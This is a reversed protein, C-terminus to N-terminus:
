IGRLSVAKIYKKAAEAMKQMEEKPVGSMNEGILNGSDTFAQLFYRKAGKIWEAAKEISNVDHFQRVVTTRFEYDVGGELLLKVSEKIPTIDFSPVGVTEAYLGPCNKIDMAVYDLVGSKILEELREPFTGNTDLKVSYGLARIEAIFDAIDKQMLPEGGTIAVGDLLGQRKKLFSIVEEAAIREDTNIETVLPANHCFPCRMNCGATFVTCAVRGPFDLLTMKLFGNIIM